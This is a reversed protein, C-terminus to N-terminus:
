KTPDFILGLGRLSLLGLLRNVGLKGKHDLTSLVSKTVLGGELRQSLALSLEDDNSGVGRGKALRLKLVVGHKGLSRDVM